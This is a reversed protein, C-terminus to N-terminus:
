TLLHHPIDRSRVQEDQQQQQQHHYSLDHDPLSVNSTVSGSSSNSPTRRHRIMAQLSCVQRETKVVDDTHGDDVRVPRPKLVSSLDAANSMMM